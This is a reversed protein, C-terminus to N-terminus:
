AHCRQCEAILEARQSLDSPIPEVGALLNLLRDHMPASTELFQTVSQAYDDIQELLVSSFNVVCHMRPQMELHAAMDSYDKLGHLYVWPLRYDGDLGDRYWPQHMHWCLVVNLKGDAM